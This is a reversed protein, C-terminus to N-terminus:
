EAAEAKEDKKQGVEDTPGFLNLPMKLYRIGNEHPAPIRGADVNVQVSQFILRPPRLQADREQRFKVFEEKPTDGRMQPNNAKSKGITTEWMVERGGPQYDHGVFVRTDDPLDYLKRLSAYLDEASGRPFDCRGTGYDDMFLADGTFIADDIKYTVCAPTHGPTAIVDIKLSGAEFTEGDKVLADFQSGDVAFDDALDFIGKFTEQVVTIKEGIVVGAGYKRKLYQSGSLHDAHAHTELVYLLKLGKEELFADLEQLSGVSTQSALPDYDLVPDIVVADKTAEDWVVYTVTYTPEDYFAKIQM